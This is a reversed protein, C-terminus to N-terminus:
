YDSNTVVEGGEPTGLAKFILPDIKDSISRVSGDLFVFNTIGAHNSGFGWAYPCHEDPNDACKGYPYNPTFKEWNLAGITNGVSRGHVATHLGAGWYPGYSNSTHGKQASEGIGLTNSTGDKIRKLSAAGNNGFAGRYAKSTADWDANGDTYLGTSFL